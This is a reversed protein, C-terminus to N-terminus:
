FKNALKKIDNVTLGCETLQNQISGHKIFKDDIGLRHLNVNKGKDQYYTAVLSGFGGALLNEELTIVKGELSDLLSTDLPKVSRVCVTKVKLDTQKEFEKCLDVMRPGVALLTLDKGDSLVEWKGKNFGGLQAQLKSKKPYRIAVPSNLSLAYELADQMEEECAPTLITLNPLHSLYSLDFVGQHTKGDEGVLGARDICMVVPLNQACVDHVIQDYARQLFTSYIAVIPKLGGVAMGSAYTIAYEEAIGVDFFNEPHEKEVIALGTGDKMGATIAVIKDDKEILDNIANGLKEGFGGSSAEFNKGVGHYTDSNEEAKEYGKGKTTNIHLFIARDKATEKVHSLVKTMEKINNGDLVGVYKFGLKEFYNNRNFVRKIFDRIKRFFKTIFSNGFIKKFRRKSNVYGKKTTSKSIFKYFGNKNKSISMGNDNLIVIFNKPKENSVNLAELNLGNALSGDGVLAIVTYDENAKDRASCIGLGASISTGAHGTSFVDYQSEERDPFGSIGGSQRLSDFQERRGTLLKHAYCQHGVDFIIKDKPFDFVYNLAITTEVLGLNSSLHGGNKRTTCLIQSRIDTALAQLQETKLQKIDSSNDITELISM